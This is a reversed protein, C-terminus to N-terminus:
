QRLIAPHGKSIEEQNIERVLRFIEGMIGEPNHRNEGIYRPAPLEAITTPTSLERELYEETENNTTVLIHLLSEEQRYWVAIHFDIDPHNVDVEKIVFPLQHLEADYSSLGIAVGNPTFRNGDDLIIVGDRYITGGPGMTVDNKTTVRDVKVIQRQKVRNGFVYVLEDGAKVSGPEIM